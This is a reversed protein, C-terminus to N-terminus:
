ILNLWASKEFVVGFIFFRVQNEYLSSDDVDLFFM